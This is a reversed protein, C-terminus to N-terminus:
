GRRGVPVRRRVLREDVDAAHAVELDADAFLPRVPHQARAGSHRDLDQGGSRTTRSAKVPLTPSPRWRVYGRLATARTAQRSSERQTTPHEPGAGGASAAGGAGIKPAGGDTCSQCSAEIKLSTPERM